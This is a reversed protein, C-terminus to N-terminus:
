ITNGEIGKQGLFVEETEIEDLLQMIENWTEIGDEDEFRDPYKVIKAESRLEFGDLVDRAAKVFCEQTAAAVDNISEVPGEVVVADHIPCCVMIGRETALSCAFRLIEAGAAQIPFNILTRPNPKVKPDYHYRWGYVTSLSCGLLGLNSTENSWKWFKPYTERHLQLLQRGVIEPEKLQRALSVSGMGYQAGLTCLKVQSRERPHSEKTGDPPIIGLQKGSMLYADGAEYAAKMTEDESLVGAIAFEQQACDIYAIAQGETPKILCRLAKPLGFIFKTTSPANRGTKTGFPSLMCRNRGDGGITLHLTKLKSLLKRLERLKSVEPYAVSMLKFTEDKADLRGSELRPWPLGKQEVWREFRDLKFTDGEFVGYQAGDREVLIKRIPERHKVLRRYTVVDIPTGTMEMSSVAVMYRGRLLAQPELHPSMVTLLQRLAIVDSECYELLDQKEQETFPGGRIAIDRMSKKEVAEIGSLGFYQLAILLNPKESLGYYGNTHNKFEAYLDLIRQPMPWGLVRFCNLDASAFFAVFLVDDGIPFPPSPMSFLDDSWLRVTRDTRHEIAVICHPEPKDGDPQRYEFDALWIERYHDLWNTGLTM